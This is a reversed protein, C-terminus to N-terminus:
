RWDRLANILSGEGHVQSWVGPDSVNGLSSFDIVLIFHGGTDTFIVARETPVLRALDDYVLPWHSSTTAVPNSTM